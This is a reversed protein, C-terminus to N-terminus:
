FCILSPFGVMQEVKDDYTLNEIKGGLECTIDQSHNDNISESIINDKETDAEDKKVEVLNIGSESKQKQEDSM